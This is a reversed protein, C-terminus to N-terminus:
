GRPLLPVDGAVIRWGRGQMYATAAIGLAILGGVPGTLPVAATSVLSAPIFCRFGFLSGHPASFYIGIMNSITSIKIAM